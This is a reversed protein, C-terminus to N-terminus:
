ASGLTELWVATDHHNTMRLVTGDAITFVHVFPADRLRCWHALTNRAPILPEADAILAGAPFLRPEYRADM